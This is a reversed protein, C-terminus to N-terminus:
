RWARQSTRTGLCGHRLSRRHRLLQHWQRDRSPGRPHLSNRRDPRLHRRDGLLRVRHHIRASRDPRITQIGDVDEEAADYAPDATAMSKTAAVPDTRLKVLVILADRGHTLRARGALEREPKVARSWRRLRRVRMAIAWFPRAYAACLGQERCLRAM